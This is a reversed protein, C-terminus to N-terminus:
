LNEEHQTAGERQRPLIAIHVTGVGNGRKGYKVDVKAGNKYEDWGILSSSSSAPTSFTLQQDLVEIHANVDAIQARARNLASELRSKLQFSQAGGGGGDYDCLEGSLKKLDTEIGGRMIVKNKAEKLFKALRCRKDVIKNRADKTMGRHFQYVHYHTEMRFHLQGSRDHGLQESSSVPWPMKIGPPHLKIKPPQAPPPDAAKTASPPINGSSASVAGGFYRVLREFLAAPVPLDLEKGDNLLQKWADGSDRNSYM